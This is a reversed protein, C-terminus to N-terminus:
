PILVIRRGSQEARQWVREVDALPIRETEVRLERRAARSM